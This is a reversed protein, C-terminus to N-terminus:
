EYMGLNPFRQNSKSFTEKLTSIYQFICVLMQGRKPM